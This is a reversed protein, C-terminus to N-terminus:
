RRWLNGLRTRLRRGVRQPTSIDRETSTRYFRDKARQDAARLAAVRSKSITEYWYIQNRDIWYHSACHLSSNNISPSLSVSEGDFTLLWDTPSLPNVVEHGCGCACLHVATAYPMSIYLTQARLEAHPPIQTTFRHAFVNEDTM